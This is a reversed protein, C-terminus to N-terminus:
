SPQVIGNANMQIRTSRAKDLVSSETHFFDGVRINEIISQGLDNSVNECVLTFAGELAILIWDGSSRIVTGKQFPHHGIEGVHLQCDKLVVTQGKWQTRAGPYPEDFACVFNAIEHANWAWNIWGHTETHLRPYYSSCYELQRRKPFMCKETFVRMLFDLVFSELRIKYDEHHELPTQVARPIVYEQSLIVPGTDVGDDVEHLMLNGIRDGRMIRWTFGGGGRDSPLRTGHANLVKGDFLSTRTKQKMIWRAGFSLALLDGEVPESNLLEEAERSRIDDVVHVNQLGSPLSNAQDPATLIITQVGHKAALKQIGDFLPSAGLLVLKKLPGCVFV